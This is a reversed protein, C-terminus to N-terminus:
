IVQGLDSTGIDRQTTGARRTGRGDAPLGPVDEPHEEWHGAIWVYDSGNWIWEGEIWVAGPSPPASRVEVRLDPPGTQLYIATPGCSLSGLLLIAISFTLGILVFGILAV